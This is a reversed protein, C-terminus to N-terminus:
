WPLYKNSYTQGNAVCTSGLETACDGGEEACLNSVRLGLTSISGPILLLALGLLSARLISRILM